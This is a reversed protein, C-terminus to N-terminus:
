SGNPIPTSSFRALGHAGHHRLVLRPRSLQLHRIKDVLTAARLATSGGSRAIVKTLVPLSKSPKIKILITSFTNGYLV